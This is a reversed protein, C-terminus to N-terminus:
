VCVREPFYKRPHAWLWSLIKYPARCDDDHKIGLSPGCYNSSINWRAKPLWLVYKCLEPGRPRLLSQQERLEQEQGGTCLWLMHSLQFHLGGM